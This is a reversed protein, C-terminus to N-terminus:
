WYCGAPSLAPTDFPQAHKLEHSLDIHMMLGVPVHCAHAHILDAPAFMTYAAGEVRDISMAQLRSILM